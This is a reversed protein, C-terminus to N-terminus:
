FGACIGLMISGNDFFGDFKMKPAAMMYGINIGVGKFVMFSVRPLVYLGFNGNSEKKTEYVDHTYPRNFIYDTEQGVCQKYEYSSHGYILGAAGDIYISPTLYYRTGLGLYAGWGDMPGSVTYYGGINVINFRYDMNVSAASEFRGMYNFSVTGAGKYWGHRIVNETTDNKAEPTESVAGRETQAQITAAGIMAVLMIFLKKM